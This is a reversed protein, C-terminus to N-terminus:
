KGDYKALIGPIMDETLRGYVDDGIMIVPALGCAGVCRTATLTFKNDETTKGTPLNDLEGSIKDLIKQSGRVYCATGLCVGITYRGRPELVFQTYFTTVGYVDSLSVDLGQAILKQVEIPLYGFVDQAEQLVPMMAGKEGKHKAIIKELAEFKEAHEKRDLAM